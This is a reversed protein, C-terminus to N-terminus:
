RGAGIYGALQGQPGIIVWGGSVAPGVLRLFARFCGTTGRFGDLVILCYGKAVGV